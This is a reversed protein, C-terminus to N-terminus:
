LGPALVYAMCVSGFLIAHTNAFNLRNQSTYALKTITVPICGIMSIRAYIAYKDHIIKGRYM